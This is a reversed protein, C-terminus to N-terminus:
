GVRRKLMTMSQYTLAVEGHGNTVELGLRLFGRDPKSQSPRAELVTVHTTLPDDPFVPKLWRVADMGPGALGTEEFHGLDLYLRFSFALTQFGSAIVRGFPGLAAFAPDTHIAQPDYDRAFAIIGDESLAATRTTFTEGVTFDDITRGPM